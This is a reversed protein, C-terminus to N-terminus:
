YHAERLGVASYLGRRERLSLILTKLANAESTGEFEELIVATLM